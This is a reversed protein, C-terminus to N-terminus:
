PADLCTHTQRSLRCKPLRGVARAPDRDPPEYFM